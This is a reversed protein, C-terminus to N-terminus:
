RHLTRSFKVGFNGLLLKRLALAILKMQRQKERIVRVRCTRRLPTLFNSVSACRSHRVIVADGSSPFQEYPVHNQGRELRAFRTSRTSFSFPFHSRIQFTVVWKGSHFKAMIGGRRSTPKEFAYFYWKKKFKQFGLKNFSKYIIYITELTQIFYIFYLFSM